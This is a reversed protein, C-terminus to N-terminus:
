DDDAQDIERTGALRRVAELAIEWARQPSCALAVDPWGLAARLERVLDIPKPECREDDAHQAPETM